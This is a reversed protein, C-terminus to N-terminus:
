VGQPPAMFNGSPIIHTSDVSEYFLSLVLSLRNKQELQILKNEPQKEKDTEKPLEKACVLHAKRWRFRNKKEEGTLYTRDRSSQANCCGAKFARGRHSALIEFLFQSAWAHM